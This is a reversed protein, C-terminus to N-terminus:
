TGSPSPLLLKDAMLPRPGGHLLRLFLSGVGALGTNFAAAFTRGSEDPFVMLGDDYVRRSYITGALDMAMDFFRADGTLDRLDLLFEANGALGHCQVLPSRWKAGAVAAGALEAMQRYREDGTVAYGRILATGVGSSGNCWHAWAFSREEGAEWTASGKEVKALRLLTELGETGLDRYSSEGLAEAACLLFYAIGANGHAFGYLTLGAFTSEAESAVPWVAGHAGPKAAARVSEGALRARALVRDDGTLSWLHLLALGIGANGHTLDPNFFSGAPLSLALSRARAALSPDDLCRAAEILFWVAGALGFYLGPPREPEAALRD